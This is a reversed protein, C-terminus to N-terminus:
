DDLLGGQGRNLGHQLETMCRNCVLRGTPRRQVLSSGSQEGRQAKPRAYGIVEAWGEDHREIREEKCRACPLM